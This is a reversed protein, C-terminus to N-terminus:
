SCFLCSVPLLGYLFSNCQCMAVPKKFDNLRSDKTDKTLFSTPQFFTNATALIAFSRLFSCTQVHQMMAVNAGPTAQQHLKKVVAAECAFFVFCSVLCFVFPTAFRQWLCRQLQLRLPVVHFSMIDFTGTPLYPPEVALQMSKSHECCILHLRVLSHRILRWPCSLITYATYSTSSILSLFWPIM